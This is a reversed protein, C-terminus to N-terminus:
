PSSATTEQPPATTAGGLGGEAVGPHVLATAGTTYEAEPLGCKGVAATCNNALCTDHEEVLVLWEEFPELVSDDERAAGRYRAFVGLRGTGHEDVQGLSEADGGVLEESHLEDVAEEFSVCECVSSGSGGVGM